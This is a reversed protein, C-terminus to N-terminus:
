IFPKIKRVKTEEKKKIFITSIEYIQPEFRFHFVRKKSKYGLYREMYKSSGETQGMM